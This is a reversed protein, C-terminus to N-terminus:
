RTEIGWLYASFPTFFGPLINSSSKNWNRMPLSFVARVKLIVCPVFHKLEEYTPQFCARSYIRQAPRAKTEIGWLYASFSSFVASITPRMAHKLEEYTPQFRISSSSSFSGPEHPKLEEYTPQFRRIEFGHFKPVAFNWNRMPLSFVTRFRWVLKYSFANWNRMPLSFVNSVDPADLLTLRKLEEYTPQFGRDTEPVSVVKGPKLEEYTPQFSSLVFSGEGTYFHKLEEYTPQFGLKELAPYYYKERTEIGWLYASFPFGPSMDPSGCWNWNRM